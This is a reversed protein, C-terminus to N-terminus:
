NNIDSEVLLEQLLVTHIEQLIDIGNEKGRQISETDTKYSLSNGNLSISGIIEKM